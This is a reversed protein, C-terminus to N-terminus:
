RKPPPAIASGQPAATSGHPAASGQPAASGGPQSKSQRRPDFLRVLHVLSTVTSDPLPFAPMRGRGKRIAQAIAEDTVSSQWEVTTLDRAGTMRGQPGDGAGYTGHCSACNRSWAVLTVEDIGYQALRSGGDSPVEVQTAGPNSTHDHDAPTWERLDKSPAQCSSALALLAVSSLSRLM